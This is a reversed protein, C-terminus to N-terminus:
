EIEASLGNDNLATCIGELKLYEGEKVICKGNNHVIMACQEAQIENHRCFKILCNIVHPFTNYDDNYLVIRNSPKKDKKTLLEEENYTSPNM